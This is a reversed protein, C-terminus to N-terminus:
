GLVKVSLTGLRLELDHGVDSELWVELYDLNALSIQCAATLTSTKGSSTILNAGISGVVQVGNKYIHAACFSSGGETKQVAGLFTVDFVRGTTGTYTLVNNDPMAFDALHFPTTIGLAKAPINNGLPTVISQDRDFYYSGFSLQAM